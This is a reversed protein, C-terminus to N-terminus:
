SPGGAKAEVMGKVHPRPQAAPRPRPLMLRLFVLMAAYACLIGLALATLISLFVIASALLTNM